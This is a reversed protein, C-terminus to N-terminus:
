HLTEPPGALADPPREHMSAGVPRVNRLNELIRNRLRELTEMRNRNELAPEPPIHLRYDPGFYEYYENPPMIDQMGRDKGVLVSTEYTWCRAVNKVKYGGGGLVLLPVGFSSMLKHCAAHGKISLNFVGLKDQTLSDAGSQLVVAGPQYNEMIKTIIPDFLFKYSADDMGDRLPVNVAYYKGAGVGIDSSDGTGPFFSDGHKHFSVTMVRDTTLFAEEVGDGHHVDIDVYLVRHHYKLLELISLVIDNVYCFGSAESKKAHHMGGAWNIVTDALGYNLRTAGGISGGCNMQCYEFMRDFIPCDSAIAYQRMQQAFDEQNDPTVNKLFDIYDPAHFASMAKETARVPRFVELHRYLGYRVILAHAMRVRHPKMPHGHGYYYNGIEPEYFYAVKRKGSSDM